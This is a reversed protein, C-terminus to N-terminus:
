IEKCNKPADTKETKRMSGTILKYELLRCELAGNFLPTRRSAKLRITKPLAPDATFIYARWDSFRNKLVDGLKPYLEILSETEGIRVGYPPNTVLIGHPEPASIELINAQKLHAADLLGAAELNTRTDTLAYGYLDSGYISQQSVSLQASLAKNKLKSWLAQDFQKFQEFAFHRQSGPPINLAIQAAELLFTGSGCMPDLLPTGPEWGTLQLIGAALNERLPADGAVKRNGRKFLADGSTDLYLTFERADLFGHIRIDPQLTNISPRKGTTKRFKDCIADKIKLTIFDLSRLPCKIAALNVRITLEPLFWEHWSFAYATNYIDQEDRYTKKAIQWLVRSAIRSGLNAQYCTQWSGKFHVGGNASKISQAGTKTLEEALVCELGRPCPAFFQLSDSKM